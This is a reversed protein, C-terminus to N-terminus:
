LLITMKNRKRMEKGKAQRGAKWRVKSEEKSGRNKNGEIQRENGRQGGGERKSKKQSSPVSTAKSTPPTEM